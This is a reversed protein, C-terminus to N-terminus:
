DSFGAGDVNLPKMERKKREKETKTNHCSHCLSQLNNTDLRLDWHFRIEQVHDVVNAQKIIGRKLCHECCPNNLRYQYSMNKWAKSNYFRIYKSDVKMRDHYTTKGRVQKHKSCYAESYEVLTKCGAHNCQKKVM